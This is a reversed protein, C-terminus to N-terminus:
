NKETLLCFLTRLRLVLWMKKIETRKTNTNTRKTNELHTEPRKKAVDLICSWPEVYALKLSNAKKPSSAKKM